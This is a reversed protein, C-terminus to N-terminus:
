RLVRGFSVPMLVYRRIGPGDYGFQNSTIASSTSFGVFSFLSMTMFFSGGPGRGMLPGMFVVMLFTIFSMRIQNSRLYYRLSKAAMQAYKAGFLRAVSDYKSTFSAKAAKGTTSINTERLEMLGLFGSLAVCWAVLILLNLLVVLAVHGTMAAAAS